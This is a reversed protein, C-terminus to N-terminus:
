TGTIRYLSEEEIPIYIKFSSGKGIESNVEITANHSDVISKVISLGLGYGGYKRGRHYDGRYFRDFIYKICEKSMGSGNDAIILTGYVMKNIKEMNTSISILGTIEDTHNVANQFLNIIVQKFQNKNISVKEKLSLDLQIKRSGCIVQLQSLLERIVENIDDKQIEVAVNQDMRTLILLDNILKTLRESESLISNLANYLQKENKAAGRLLVEVFGHISTLPTRLEHSADSVFQRMKEKIINEEQFSIELREIMRNFAMSLRDIELQGNDASLRKNLQDIDIKEMEEAITNLPRLIHKLVTVGFIGGIVIAILSVLLFISIQKYLIAHVSELSTSLQLLGTPSKINGIKRIIVIQMHGNKDKLTIYGNITGNTNIYSIYQKRNLKPVPTEENIENNDKYKDVIGHTAGINPEGQQYILNGNKDFVASSMGNDITNEVLYQANMELQDTTKINVLTDLNINHFRSDLFQAQSEYLYKRMIIFQTFGIIVILIILIVLFKNILEKRLSNKRKSYLGKIM